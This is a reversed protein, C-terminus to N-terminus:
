VVKKDTGVLYRECNYKCWNRDEIPYPQELLCGTVCAEVLRDPKDVTEYCYGDFFLKGDVLSYYSCTNYIDNYAFVGKLGFSKECYGWVSNWEGAENVCNQKQVFLFGVVVLLVAFLIIIGIKVNLDM